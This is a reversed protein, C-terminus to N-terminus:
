LLYIADTGVVPSVFAILGSRRSLTMGATAMLSAQMYVSSWGLAPAPLYVLAALLALAVWPWRVRESNAFALSFYALLALISITIPVVVIPSGSPPRGVLGLTLVATTVALVSADVAVILLTSRFATPGTPRRVSISAATM